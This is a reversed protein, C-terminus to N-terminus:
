SNLFWDVARDMFSLLKDNRSQNSRQIPMGSRGKNPDDALLNEYGRVLSVDKKPSNSINHNSFGTRRNQRTPSPRHAIARTNQANHLRYRHNTVDDALLNEFGATLSIGKGSSKPPYLSRSASSASATSNDANQVGYRYENPNDALLHEYGATLSVPKKLKPIQAISDWQVAVLDDLLADLEDDDTVRYHTAQKLLPQLSEPLQDTTIEPTNDLVIVAIQMESRLGADIEVHVPEYPDDIIRKGDEAVMNMAYRGFVVILGNCSWVAQQRDTTVTSTVRTTDIVNEAGLHLAFRQRMRKVTSRSTDYQLHSIYIRSM